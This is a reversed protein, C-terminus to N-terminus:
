FKSTSNLWNGDEVITYNNHARAVYVFIDADMNLIHHKAYGAKTEMNCISDYLTDDVEMLDVVIKNQRAVLSPIIAPYSGLSVMTYGDLIINSKTDQFYRWEKQM